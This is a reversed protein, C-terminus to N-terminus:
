RGRCSVGMALKVTFRRPTGLLPAMTSLEAGVEKPLNLHQMNHQHLLLISSM